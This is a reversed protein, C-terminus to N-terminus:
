VFLDVIRWGLYVVLGAVLLKFHWPASVDEDSGGAALSRLDLKEKSSPSTVRSVSSGAEIVRRCVPCSGDPDMATPTWYRACASCFPM